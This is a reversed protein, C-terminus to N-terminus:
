DTVVTSVGKFSYNGSASGTITTDPDRYIMTLTGGEVKAHFEGTLDQFDRINFQVPHVRFSPPFM